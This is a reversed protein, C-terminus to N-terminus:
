HSDTHTLTLRHSDIHTPTLRHSDTYTMTLRHPDTHTLIPRHSDTYSRTLVNENIMLMTARVHNGRHVVIYSNYQSSWVLTLYLVLRLWPAYCNNKILSRHTASKFIMLLLTYWSFKSRLCTLTTSRCTIHERDTDYLVLKLFM